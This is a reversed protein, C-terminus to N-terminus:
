LTLVDCFDVRDSGVGFGWLVLSLRVQPDLLVREPLSHRVEPQRTDQAAATSSAHPGIVDDPLLKHYLFTTTASTVVIILMLSFKGLMWSLVRVKVSRTRECTHCKHHPICPKAAPGGVEGLEVHSEM